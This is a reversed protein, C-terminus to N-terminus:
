SALHTWLIFYYFKKLSEIQEFYEVTTDKGEEKEEHTYTYTHGYM